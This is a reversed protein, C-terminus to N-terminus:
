HLCPIFHTQSCVLIISLFISSISQFHYPLFFRYKFLSFNIEMMKSCFQALLLYTIPYYISLTIIIGYAIDHHLIWRIADSDKAYPVYYKQAWQHPYSPVKFRASACWPRASPLITSVFALARLIRGVGMTFMYRAGLGLGPAEVSDFLVSFALMIFLMLYHHLGIIRARLIDVAVSPLKENLALLLWQGVDPLPPTDSDFMTFGIVQVM